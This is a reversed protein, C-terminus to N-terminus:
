SASELSDREKRGHDVVSFDIVQPRVLREWDRYALRIAEEHSGAVCTIRESEGLVPSVYVPLQYLNGFPPIAGEECDPLLRGIEDEGALEVRRGGLAASMRETDVVHHSPLVAMAFAGGVKVVVAKAFERGHTHTHAATEQATYDRSHRLTEYRVKERDLM